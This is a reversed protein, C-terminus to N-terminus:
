PTWRPVCFYLGTENYDFESLLKLVRIAEVPGGHELFADLSNTLGDEQTANALDVYSRTAVQDYWGWLLVDVGFQAAVGEADAATNLTVPVKVVVVDELGSAELQPLLTSYAQQQLDLEPGGEHRWQAVGVM